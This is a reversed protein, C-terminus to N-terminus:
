KATLRSEYIFPENGHVCQFEFGNGFDFIAGIVPGSSARTEIGPELLM